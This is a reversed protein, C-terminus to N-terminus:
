KLRVDHTAKEGREPSFVTKELLFSMEHKELLPSITFQAIIVLNNKAM